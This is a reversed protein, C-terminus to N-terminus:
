ALLLNTRCPSYRLVCGRFIEHPPEINPYSFRSLAKVFTVFFFYSAGCVYDLIMPLFYNLETSKM